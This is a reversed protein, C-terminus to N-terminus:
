HLIVRRRHVVEERDMAGDELRGFRDVGKPDILEGEVVPIGKHLTNLPRLRAADRTIGLM